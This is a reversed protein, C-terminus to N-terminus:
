AFALLLYGGLGIPLSVKIRRAYKTALPSKLQAARSGFAVKLVETGVNPDCIRPLGAYFFSLSGRVDVWDPREAAIVGYLKLFAHLYMVTSLFGTLAAISILAQSM